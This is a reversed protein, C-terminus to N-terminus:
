QCSHLAVDLSEDDITIQNGGVLLGEIFPYGAPFDTASQGKLFALIQDDFNQLAQGIPKIFDVDYLAVMIIPNGPFCTAFNVEPHEDGPIHCLHLVAAVAIHIHSGSGTSQNLKDMGIVVAIRRDFETLVEVIHFDAGIEVRSIGKLRNLFAVEDDAMGMDVLGSPCLVRHIFDMGDARAPIFTMGGIHILPLGFKM